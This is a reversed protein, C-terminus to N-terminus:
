EFDYVLAAVLRGDAATITTRRPVMRSAPPAFGAGISAWARIIRASVTFELSAGSQHRIATSASAGAFSGPAPAATASVAILAALSPVLMEMVQFYRM